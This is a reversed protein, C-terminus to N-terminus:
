RLIRSVGRALDGATHFWGGKFAEKTAKVDKLYGSMVTNGRCVIEGISKGDAPVREKWPTPTESMLKKSVFINNCGKDQNLRPENRLPCIIGSLFSSSGGNSSCFTAGAHMAPVNPALTAVVDGRSIGLHVLASALKLCRSQTDRGM